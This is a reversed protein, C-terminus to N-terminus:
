GTTKPVSNAKESRPNTTPMTVSRVYTSISGRMSKSRLPQIASDGSLARRQRLKLRLRRASHDSIMKEIEDMPQDGFGLGKM